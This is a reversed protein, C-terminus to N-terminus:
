KCVQMMYVCLFHWCLCVASECVSVYATLYCKDIYMYVWICGCVWGQVFKLLCWDKCETQLSQLERERESVCALVCMYVCAYVCGRMCEYVCACVGVYVCVCVRACVCVCVCVQENWWVCQLFLCVALHSLVTKNKNKNKTKKAKWNKFIQLGVNNMSQELIMVCEAVICKVHVVIIIILFLMKIASNRSICSSDGCMCETYLSLRMRAQTRVCVCVCVCVCTCMCVCIYVCLPKLPLIWVIEFKDLSTPFSVNWAVIQVFVSVYLFCFLCVFLFVFSLRIVRSFFDILFSISTSYLGGGGGGSFFVLGWCVRLLVPRHLPAMALVMIKFYGAPRSKDAKTWSSRSWM